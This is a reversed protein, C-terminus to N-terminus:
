RRGKQIRHNKLRRRNRIRRAGGRGQSIYRPSTTVSRSLSVTAPEALRRELEKILTDVLKPLVERGLFMLATAALPALSSKSGREEIMVPQNKVPVIQIEATPVAINSSRNLPLAIARIAQNPCAEMCAECQMCLAQDIMAREDRLLIAGHTCAQMCSGCGTCLEQDIQIVM